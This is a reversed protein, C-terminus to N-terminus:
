KILNYIYNTFKSKPKYEKNSLISQYLYQIDKSLIINTSLRPWRKSTKFESKLMDKVLEYNRDYLHLSDVQHVYSGLILEHYTTQLDLLVHQQLISFFAIDTPLGLVVDNSRMKVSMYLKNNRIHFNAYMTCVFDKNGEYQHEPKNFHMIAQRTDKDTKLQNIVWDYQSLNNNLEPKFICYGYASNVTNDKNTIFEWFKAYKTIFNLTNVANFYWVLEAAVYKYQTSRRENDYMSNLPNTIELSVNLIENIKLNRPSSIFEPQNILDTLIKKYINAFNHSKYLKM